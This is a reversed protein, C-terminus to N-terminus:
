LKSAFSWEMTIYMYLLCIVCFQLSVSILIKESILYFSFLFMKRVNLSNNKESRKMLCVSSRSRRVSISLM